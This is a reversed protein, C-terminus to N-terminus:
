ICWIYYVRTNYNHVKYVQIMCSLSICVPAVVAAVRAAERSKERLLYTCRHYTDTHIHTGARLSVMM